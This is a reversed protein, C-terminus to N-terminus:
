LILNIGMELIRKRIYIAKQEFKVINNNLNKNAM